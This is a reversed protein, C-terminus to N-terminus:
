LAAQKEEKSLSAPDVAEVVAHDHMQRLEKLVAIAAPKGYVKLSKSVHYQTLITTDVEHTLTNQHNGIDYDELNMKTSMQTLSYEIDRFKSPITLRPQRPRLGERQRPGYKDDMEQDIDAVPEAPDAQTPGSEQTDVQQDDDRVEVMNNDNDDELANDTIDADDVEVDINDEIYGNNIEADHDESNEAIDLELNIDDEVYDDDVEAGHGDAYEHEDPTNRVSRLRIPASDPRMGTTLIDINDDNVDTTPVLHRDPPSTDVPKDVSPTDAHGDVYNSLSNGDRNYFFLGDPSQKAMQHVQSVVNHPMPLKTASLRNILRGTMLSLFYHGGRENGTSRLALAGVTRPRMTNDVNEYAQVYESFDFRCHLNYNIKHGTVISQPSQNPLITASPHLANLWFVVWAALEIILRGPLKRFPLTNYIRRMQEKVTRIMRETEHVHESNSCINLTIEKDLLESRLMEFQGDMLAYNVHFGRGKYLKKVNTVAKLLTDSKSNPIHQITTFKIHRSKTVLFRVGNVFMIDAEITVTRYRDLISFPINTLHGRVHKGKTRTTKGKICGLNEGFIDQAAEVDSQTLPCNIIESSSVIDKFHKFSPLGIINQLRRAVTAKLYDRSSYRTSNTAVTNILVHGSDNCIDSFYLGQPCASFYRSRGDNM